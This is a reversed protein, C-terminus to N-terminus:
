TLAWAIFAITGLLLSLKSVSRSLSAVRIADEINKSAAIKITSALFIAISITALTIYIISQKIIFPIGVITLLLTLLSTSTISAFRYGRIVAITRVGYVKDGDIDEIGKVIERSLSMIFAFSWPILLLPLVKIRDSILMYILGGYLISNASLLSVAINGILGWRKLKWSYLYTILANISAFVGIFTGFLLFAIACGMVILLISVLLATQPSIDGKVLPRWPKSKRDIDIDYYDNVIYGGAAIMLAPMSSILLWMPDRYANPEVFLAGLIVGLLTIFVNHPRAIIVAAKIRAVITM